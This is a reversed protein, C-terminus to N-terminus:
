KSLVERLRRRFKPVEGEFAPHLFPQPPSGSTRHFRGKRDRYVWPTQRGDGKAAYKGTGFEVYVAYNVKTGINYSLGDDSVFTQISSRLRGTDVPALQKAGSEIMLASENIVDKIEAVKVDRYKRLEEAINGKFDVNMKM